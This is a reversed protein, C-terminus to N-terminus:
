SGRTTWSPTRCATVTIPTLTVYAVRRGLQLFYQIAIVPDNFICFGSAHGAAAHHLGGAINFAVEAQGSAVLEAAVLSAGSSLLASEYMGAYIPNDGAASFGFREPHYGSLGASM